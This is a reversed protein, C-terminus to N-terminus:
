RVGLWCRPSLLRGRMGSVREYHDASWSPVRQVVMTAVEVNLAKEAVTFYDLSEAEIRSRETEKRAESWGMKTGRVRSPFCRSVARSSRLRTPARGVTPTAADHWETRM